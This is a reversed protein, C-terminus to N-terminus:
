EVKPQAHATGQTRCRQGIGSRLPLSYWAWSRSYRDTEDEIGNSSNVTCAEDFLAPVLQQAGCLFSAHRIQPGVACYYYYYYYGAIILVTVALCVQVRHM